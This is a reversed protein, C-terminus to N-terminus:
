YINCWSPSPPNMTWCWFARAAARPASEAAVHTPAATQNCGPFYLCFATGRGVQSEVTILGGHTDSSAMCWPFAWAPAKAWPNPPSSRSLLHQLTEAAMGHGTDAVTLRAYEVPKIEPHAAIFAADPRFPELSVALRGAQGEMAHLANTALNM